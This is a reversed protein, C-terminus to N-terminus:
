PNQKQGCPWVSKADNKYLGETGQTENPAETYVVRSCTSEPTDLSASKVSPASSFLKM